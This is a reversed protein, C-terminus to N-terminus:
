INSARSVCLFLLSVGNTKTWIVKDSAQGCTFKIQGNLAAEIEKFENTEVDPQDVDPQSVDPQDVDPETEYNDDIKQVELEYVRLSQGNVHQCEYVGSDAYQLRSIILKNNKQVAHVSM